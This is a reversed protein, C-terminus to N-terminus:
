LGSLKAAKWQTSARQSSKCCGERWDSHYPGLQPGEMYFNQPVRLRSGLATGPPRSLTACTLHTRAPCAPRESHSSERRHLPVRVFIGAPGAQQAHAAQCSPLDPSPGLPTALCPCSPAPPATMCPLWCGAAASAPPLQLVAAPGLGAAAQRARSGGVHDEGVVRGGVGVGDWGPDRGGQVERRPSCASSGQLALMDAAAFGRSDNMRSQRVWRFWHAKESSGLRVPSSALSASSSLTPGVLGLARCALWVRVQGWTAADFKIPVGGFVVRANISERVGRGRCHRASLAQRRPRRDGASWRRPSGREGTLAFKAHRM